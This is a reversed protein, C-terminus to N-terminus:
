TSFGLAKRMWAAEEDEEDDSLSREHKRQKELYPPLKLGEAMKGSRRRRRALDLIRPMNNEGFWDCLVTDDTRAFPYTTLERIKHQVYTRAEFDGPKRPLRKRATKYLMPLLGEVGFEPDAKNGQTEHAIVEVDPYKQRWSDFHQFQFLYKYASVQEVIWLGIPHGLKISRQQLEEMLGVHRGQEADWQLWEGAQMKRRTGYILYRRESSPDVAWWEVAWFNSTSPDVTVYDFLERSETPWENFGRDEDYCGPAVYGTPDTGGDIWERQVLISEQDADRQQFVTNYGSNSQAQELRQWPLRAEDLLCGHGYEDAGDWQRHNGDCLDDFHAPYVIHEYIRHEVGAEDFYTRDLRNRYLDLNSFRHGVLLGVGGPELRAEAEDEFKSALAESIEAKSSNDKTVLDDWVYYDLRSGVYQTGAGAAQVTPEKSHLERDGIQAVTFAKNRWPYDDGMVRLPKFRGFALAPTLEATRKQHRDWYPNQLEFFRRLLTVYEEAKEESRHGLLIRLARGAEPDEVGGGCILWAPIDHTFLTSKGVGPAVNVVAFTIESKDQLMEVSRNAADKGWANTSRCLFVERFLNFDKLCDKVGGDLEAYTKPEPLGSEAKPAQKSAANLKKGWSESKGVRRSAEKISLGQKDVYHRFKHVDDSTANKSGKKRGGM